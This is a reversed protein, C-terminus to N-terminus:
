PALEEQPMEARRELALSYGYEFAIEMKSVIEEHLLEEADLFVDNSLNQQLFYVLKRYNESREIQRYEESNLFEGFDDKCM